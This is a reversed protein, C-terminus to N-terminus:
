WKLQEVATEYAANLEFPSKCLKEGVCLGAGYKSPEVKAILFGLAFHPHEKAFECRKKFVPCKTNKCEEEIHSVISKIEAVDAGEVCATCNEANVAQRLNPVVSVSEALASFQVGQDALNLSALSEKQPHCARAGICYAYALHGPEVREVLMGATMNPHTKM